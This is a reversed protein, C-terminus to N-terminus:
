YKEFVVLLLSQCSRLNLCLVGGILLLMFMRVNTDVNECSHFHETLWRVVVCCDSVRPPNM